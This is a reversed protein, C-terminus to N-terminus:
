LGLAEKVKNYEKAKGNEVMELLETLTLRKGLIDTTKVRLVNQYTAKIIVIVRYPREDFDTIGITNNNFIHLNKVKINLDVWDAKILGKSTINYAVKLPLLEAFQNLTMEELRGDLRRRRDANAQKEKAQQLAMELFENRTAYKM